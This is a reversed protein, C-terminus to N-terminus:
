TTSPMEFSIRFYLTLERFADQTAQLLSRNEHFTTLVFARQETTHQGQTIINSVLNISHIGKVM